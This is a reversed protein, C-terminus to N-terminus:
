RNAELICKMQLDVWKRAKIYDSENPKRFMSGFEKNLLLVHAETERDIKYQSVKYIEAYVKGHIPFINFGYKIGKIEMTEKGNM